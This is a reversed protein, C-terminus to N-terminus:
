RRASRSAARHQRLRQRLALRSSGASRSSRAAGSGILNAKILTDNDRTVLAAGLSILAAGSLGGLYALGIRRPDIDVAPSVLLGGIATGADGAALTLHLTAPTELDALAAGWASFWTGWFLGGALAQVDSHSLELQQSLAITGLGGVSTGLCVLGGVKRDTTEAALGLSLGHWAGDITGLAVLSGRGGRYDLQNAVLGGAATGAISGLFVGRADVPGSAVKTLLPFSYGLLKGYSGFLWMMGLQEGTPEVYQAVAAAGIIGLGPGLLSGAAQEEDEVPSFFAAPALSGLWEGEYAGLAILQKDRTSFELHPSLALGAGLGAISAATLTGFITRTSDPQALFLASGALDVALVGMFNTEAVDSLSYRLGKRTSITAALAAGEGLLGLSLVLRHDPDEQLTAATGMGIGAGWMGANVIWAAQAQTIEGSRTLYAATIGGTVAGGVIGIAIGAENEGLGGVAALTYSGLVVSGGILGSRGERDVVPGSKELLDPWRARLVDRAADRVEKPEDTSTYIDRLATAADDTGAYQLSQIAAIRIAKAEIKLRAAQLLALEIRHEPPLRGLMRAAGLRVGADPDQELLYALPGVARTDRLIALEVAERRQEDPTWPSFIVGYLALLAADDNAAVAPADPAPPQQPAPAEPPAEAPAEPPAEQARARTAASALM